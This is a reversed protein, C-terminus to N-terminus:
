PKKPAKAEKEAQKRLYATFEKRDIKGDKNTDIEDFVDYFPTGKLEDRTLRGDANRDLADFDPENRPPPPSPNQPKTEAAKKQNALFRAATRRLEEKDLFGDKNTDIQDFAKALGGKAEARSIKGDKDTDMDALWKAVLREVEAKNDGPTNGEVGYRKRLVQLMQAVEKRDLKGDKNTDSRDFLNAMRPGLDKKVLYGKQDKDYRKIFDEPSGKLVELFAQGPKQAQDKQNNQDDAGATLGVVAWLALAAVMVRQHMMQNGVRMFTKM